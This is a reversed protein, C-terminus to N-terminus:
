CNQREVAAIRIIYRRRWFLAKITFRWLWKKAPLRAAAAEVARVLREHEAEKLRSAQIEKGLEYFMIPDFM